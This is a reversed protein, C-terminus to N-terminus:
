LGPALAARGGFSTASPALMEPVITRSSFAHSSEDPPRLRPGAAVAGIGRWRFSEVMHAQHRGGTLEGDVAILMEAVEVYDLHDATLREWTMALAVGMYDRADVLAQRFEDRHAPYVADFYPQILADYEPHQELADSLDALDRGIIGHEVLIEQFVDVLIDFLAGTLPESLDHEKEWGAAFEWMKSANSALRIEETASLEAFRNLENFSYLNGRTEDLLDDVLTEFHLAAIIAVMDAASEHFGFYESKGAGPGPIGITGYIILHGFEHAIVDFNLAHPVISGDEAHHAGVEMFGYGVHANNFSPLMVTELRDYDRGFHWSLPHGFYREWIDMTFRVSGFVHAEAFEPTGPPIHDFHGYRDPQVPRLIRGGWPPLDLQPRGTLGSRLGYPNRKDPPNILYVLDDSPGPGIRHPPTSIWITEPPRGPRGHPLQPFLRFRTGTLRYHGSM